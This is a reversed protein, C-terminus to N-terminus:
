RKLTTTTLNHAFPWKEAGYSRLPAAKPVLVAGYESFFGKKEEPKMKEPYFRDRQARHRGFFLLFFCTNGIKSKLYTPCVTHHDRLIHNSFAM